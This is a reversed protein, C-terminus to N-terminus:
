NEDLEDVKAIRIGSEALAPAIETRWIAYERELDGRFMETTEIWHQRPTRGDVSRRSVGAQVEQKLRGIRKMFFEDTNNTFYFLASVRELLPNRRDIAEHLVRSQFRLSATERSLYLEPDSLNM